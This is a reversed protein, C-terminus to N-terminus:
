SVRRHREAELAIGVGRAFRLVDEESTAFSTMWRVLGTDSWRWFYSWKQLSEVMGSPLIAFVANARPTGLIQIEELPRVMEVLLRAMANAHRAHTIWLDDDLLALLQAAIFRAKSPLQAAQKQIFRAAPVTGPRLIVVAEGYMGGNKTFGFTLVDVGTEQVMTRLDDGTAAVANAIRAGDMHLAIGARHAATALATIEESTYVTGFETSQSISVVAPQPHHVDGLWSLRDLVADVTLKGDQTPTPLLTAGSFRSPSGCEDTFIHAQDSCIVAQWPQLLCGLGVVNAGTGGWCLLIEVPAGFLDRFREELSATWPDIGYALSSGTNARQLAEMVSPAVGSANDSAFSCEPAEPFQM